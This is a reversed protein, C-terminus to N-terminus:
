SHNAGVLCENFREKSQNCEDAYAELQVQLPAASTNKLKSKTLPLAKLNCLRQVMGQEQEPPLLTGAMFPRYLTQQNYQYALMGEQVAEPLTFVACGKNNTVSSLYDNLGAYTCRVEINTVPALKADVLQISLDYSNDAVVLENLENINLTTQASEPITLEDGPSLCNKLSRREFLMNNDPHNVLDDVSVNYENALQQTCENFVVTHKPM